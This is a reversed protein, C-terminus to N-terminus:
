KETTLLQVAREVQPDKGGAYRIDFPVPVEPAVGRGELVEGDVTLSAVALYLLAGNSLCFPTGPLVAGATNEGVVRALKHKKVAYAIGEKGSRSGGNILLVAPVRIQNDNSVVEGKRDRTAYVPATKDFLEVYWPAAGGWGDRIDVIIGTVGKANLQGIAFRATNQMDDGAWSWIHVYGIKGKASPLVRASATIADRFEDNPAVTRPTVPIESVPGGKVRRVGLRVTQGARGALSPVPEFPKGDATVVDDGLRLGAEEAPGGEYIGGAFWHGDREKWFVGISEHKLPAPPFNKPDCQKPLNRLIEEFIGALDWYEPRSRPIYETHSTKLSAVLQEYVRDKAEPTIAAAADKRAQAVREAWRLKALLGPSYFRKTVIRDIEGLVDPEPTAARAAGALVLLLAWAHRLGLCAPNWTTRIM